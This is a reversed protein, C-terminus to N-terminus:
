RPQWEVEAQQPTTRGQSCCFGSRIGEDQGPAALNDEDTLKNICNPDADLKLELSVSLDDTTSLAKTRKIDPTNM